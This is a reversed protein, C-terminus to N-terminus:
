NPEPRQIAKRPWEKGVRLLILKMRPEVLGYREIDM